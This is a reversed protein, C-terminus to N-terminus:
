NCFDFEWKMKKTGHELRGLSKLQTGTLAYGHYLLYAKCKELLSTSQHTITALIVLQNMGVRMAMLASMHILYPINDNLTNEAHM